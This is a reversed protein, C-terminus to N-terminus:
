ASVFRNRAKACIGDIRKRVREDYLLQRARPYGFAQLEWEISRYNRHVGSQALRYALNWMREDRERTM